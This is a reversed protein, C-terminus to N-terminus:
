ETKRFVADGPECPRVACCDVRGGLAWFTRLTVQLRREDKMAIPIADHSTPRLVDLENGRHENGTSRLLAVDGKRLFAMFERTGKRGGEEAKM